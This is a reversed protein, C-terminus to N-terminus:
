KAAAPSEGTRRFSCHFHHDAHCGNGCSLIQAHPRRATKITVSSCSRVVCERKVPVTIHRYTTITAIDHAIAGIYPFLCFVAGVGGLHPSTRPPSKGTAGSRAAAVTLAPGAILLMHSM